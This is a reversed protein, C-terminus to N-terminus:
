RMHRLLWEDLQNESTLGLHDKIRLRRGWVTRKTLNLLRCIDSIDVGLVTLAIVQLDSATLQPHEKKLRILFNGYNANFEQQFSAWQEDTMVLNTEVFEQVWTPVKDEKHRKMSEQMSKSLQIRQALLRGMSARRIEVEAHLREIQMEKEAAVVMRRAHRRSAIAVLVILGVLIVVLVVFLAMWLRQKEVQLQLNQERASANDFQEAITFTRTMGSAEIEGSQKNYLSLLTEYAQAHQGRAHQYRSLLFAYKDESWARFVTDAALVDLYKRALDLKKERLYHRALDYAYRSQGASDCLYRSITILEPSQPDLKSLAAYRIDLKTLTDLSESLQLAKEFAERRVVSDPTTRGLERWGCAAYLPLAASDLYPVAQEYYREAVAYLQETESIRGMKYYTMGILIAPVDEGDFAREAQKLQQMAEADRGTLNRYAGEIYYAEGAYRGLEKEECYAAAENLVEEDELVRELKLRAHARTIIYIHRETETLSDPAIKELAAYAVQPHSWLSDVAVKLSANQVENGRETCGVLATLLMALVWFKRMVRRKL